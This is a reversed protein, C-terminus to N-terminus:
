IKSMRLLDFQILVADPIPVRTLHGDPVCSHMPRDSVSLSSILHHILGKFASNFGM